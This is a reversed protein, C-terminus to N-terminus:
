LGLIRLRLDATWVSLWAAVWDDAAPPGPMAADAAELISLISATLFSTPYMLRMWTQWVLM